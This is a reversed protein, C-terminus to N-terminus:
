RSRQPPPFRTTAAKGAFRLIHQGNPDMFVHVIQAHILLTRNFLSDSIKQRFICRAWAGFQSPHDLLKLGLDCLALAGASGCCRRHVTLMRRGALERGDPGSSRVCPLELLALRWRRAWSMVRRISRGSREPSIHASPYRQSSVVTPRGSRKYSPDAGASVLARRGVPPHHFRSQVDFVPIGSRRTCARLLLISTLGV